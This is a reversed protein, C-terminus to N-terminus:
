HLVNKMFNIMFDWRIQIIWTDMLNDHISKIQLTNRGYLRPAPVQIDDTFFTRSLEIGQRAKGNFFINSGRSFGSIFGVRNPLITIDVCELLLFWYYIYSSPIWECEGLETVMMHNMKRKLSIVSGKQHM